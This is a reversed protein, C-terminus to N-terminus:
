GGGGFRPRTAEAYEGLLRTPSIHFRRPQSTKVSTKTNESDDPTGHRDTEAIAPEIQIRPSQETRYAFHMQRGLREFQQLDQDLRPGTGDRLRLQEFTHPRTHKDRLRAQGPHDILDPGSDAVRRATGADDSGNM